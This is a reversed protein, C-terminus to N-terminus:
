DELEDELHQGHLAPNLGRQRAAGPGLDQPQPRNPGIQDDVIVGQGPRPEVEGRLLVFVDQVRDLGAVREVFQGEFQPSYRKQRIFTQVVNALKLPHHLIEALHVAIQVIDLAEGVDKRAIERPLVVLHVDVAGPAHNQLIHLIKETM